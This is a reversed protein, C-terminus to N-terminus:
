EAEGLARLLAQCHKTRTAGEAVARVEALLVLAAEKIREQRQYEKSAATRQREKEEEAAIAKAILGKTEIEEFVQGIIAVHAGVNLKRTDFFDPHNRDQVLPNKYLTRKSANRGISFDTTIEKTRIDFWVHYRAGDLEWSASAKNSDLGTLQVEVNTPTKVRTTEM